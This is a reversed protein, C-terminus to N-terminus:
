KNKNASKAGLKNEKGKLLREINARHRFISLVGLFLTTLFLYDNVERTIIFSIIPASISAMISGLSVYKTFVIFTVGILLCILGLKWNLIFLVGLSTAIGKGGKFKLFVPWNHGLVVFIGSLYSGEVGLIYRGILIAIIGKSIDILFTFIAIKKGFVRLANTTGANGSGHNRIDVNKVFKGLFYAPSFCGILYSILITLVIDM